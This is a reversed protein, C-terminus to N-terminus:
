FPKYNAFYAAGGALVLMLIWMPKAWQAKRIVVGTLGGLVFWIALKAIIWGPLGNHGLGLRALLGFGGILSVLMGVGHTIALQKRFSHQKTGGNIVHMTLAALSMLVMFIGVFHVIKYVHYPIM